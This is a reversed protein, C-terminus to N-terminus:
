WCCFVAILCRHLSHYLYNFDFIFHLESNLQLLCRLYLPANFRFFPFVFFSYLHLIFRQWIKLKNLQAYNDLLAHRPLITCIQSQKHHQCSAMSKDEVIEFIGVNYYCVPLLTCIYKWYNLLLIAADINDQTTPLIVANISCIIM